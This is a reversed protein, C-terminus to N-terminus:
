QGVKALKNSLARLRDFSSPNSTGIPYEGNKYENHISLISARLEDDCGQSLIDDLEFGSGTGDVHRM